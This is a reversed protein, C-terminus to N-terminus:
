SKKPPNGKPSALSKYRDRYELSMEYYNKIRETVNDSQKSIVGSWPCAYLNKLLRQAEEVGKHKHALFIVRSIAHYSGSGENFFNSVNIVEKGLITATMALESASTTYVVDCNSLLRNGSVSKDIIKNWGFRTAFLQLSEDNTIPHPKLYVNDDEHMLRAIVEVSAVDLMNHGPLFVIKKIHKYKSIDGSMSYKDDIFSELAIPTESEYNCADQILRCNVDLSQSYIWFGSLLETYSYESFNCPQVQSVDYSIPYPSLERIRPECEEAFKNRSSRKAFNGIKAFQVKSDSMMDNAYKM